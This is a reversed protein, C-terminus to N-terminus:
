KASVLSRMKELCGAYYSSCVDAFFFLFFCCFLLLVVFVVVFGVFCRVGGWFLFLCFAGFFYCRRSCRM